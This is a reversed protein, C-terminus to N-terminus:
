ARDGTFTLTGDALGATAIQGFEALMNLQQEARRRNQELRALLADLRLLDDPTLLPLPLDELRHAARVAGAPRRASDRDSILAALVRPTFRPREAGPIRVARAPFAVVSFGAHDVIAGLAPSTTVIVDGPETLRAHAYRIALTGRDVMLEGRRRRGLVDDPGIVAHHGDATIDDDRLRTGKILMLQKRRALTGIPLSEPARLTGAAIQSAIPHGVPDAEAGLKVLGTELEAIRGVRAAASTAAGRISRPRPATLPRPPDVLDSVLEQTSFQRTHARPEYGDRRWTIVDEALGSIVDDTLRRDSVDALLIRGAWPSTFSSSLVWLAPQYGPRFPLVGGPLQIVAEVMGDAVLKTRIREAPSYAPLAGVLVDAPGLVVATRGPALRAAIDDITALADTASREEGPLYPIQTVIADPDGAEDALERGCRIDLDVPPVGHVLLRRRALRALYDNPEAGTFMPAHDSGLVSAVAALLDGPGASLDTIVLSPEDRALERAGCLEAMLRALAPTVANVLLDATGFRARERMIREFAGACGWAAEILDDVDAALVELEGPLRGIEAAVYEDGPDLRAARTRLRELIDDTGDALPEDDDLYRLCVLATVAAILEGAPLVAALSALTHLSLEAMVQEADARGTRILWESVQHADFLPRAADGEVPAPFDPHRRRWTTVVPRRVGALGAIEPMTMFQRLRRPSGPSRTSVTM